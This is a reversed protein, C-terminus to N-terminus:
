NSIVSFAWGDDSEGVRQLRFRGRLRQGHFRVQICHGSVFHEIECHGTDHRTVAGRDGSIPGEYGLYAARHDAIQRCALPESRFSDPPEDMKWTALREDVSEDAARTQEGSEDTRHDRHLAAAQIMLDYHDGRPDQHFLVVFRYPKGTLESQQPRKEM